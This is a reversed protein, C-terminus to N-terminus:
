IAILILIMKKLNNYCNELLKLIETDQNELDYLINLEYLKRLRHNIIKGSKRKIILTNKM